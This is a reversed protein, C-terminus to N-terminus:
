TKVVIPLNRDGTNEDMLVLLAKSWAHAAGPGHAYVLAM